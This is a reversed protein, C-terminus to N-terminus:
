YEAFFNSVKQLPQMAQTLDYMKKKEFYVFVTYM